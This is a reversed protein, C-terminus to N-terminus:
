FTLLMGRIFEKNTLVEAKSGQRVELDEIMSQVDEISVYKGENNWFSHVWSPLPKLKRVDLSFSDVGKQFLSVEVSNYDNIHNCKTKPSCFDDESAQMYVCMDGSKIMPFNKNEVRELLRVDM